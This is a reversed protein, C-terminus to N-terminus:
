VITNHCTMQAGLDRSPTQQRPLSPPPRMSRSSAPWRRRRRVGLCLVHVTERDLSACVIQTCTYRHLQASAGSSAPVNDAWKGNVLRRGRFPRRCGGLVARRRCCPILAHRGPSRTERAYDCAKDATSQAGSRATPVGHIQLPFLAANSAAIHQRGSPDFKPTAHVAFRPSSRPDNAGCSSAGQFTSRAM